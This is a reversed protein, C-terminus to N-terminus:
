AGADWRDTPVDTAADVGDLLNRWFRDPTDAGGPFRCSLGVVCVADEAPPRPEGDDGPARSPESAGEASLAAALREITPHEYLLTAPLERGLLEELEGSLSVAESSTIGVDHFSVTPDIATVDVGVTAALTDCLWRRLAEVTLPDAM